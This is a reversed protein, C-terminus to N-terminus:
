SFGRTHVVVVGDEKEEAGEDFKGEYAGADRGAIDTVLGGVSYGGECAGVCLEICKATSRREYWGKNESRTDRM